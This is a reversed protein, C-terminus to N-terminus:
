KKFNDNLANQFYSRLYDTARRSAQSPMLENEIHESVDMLPQVRLIFHPKVAPIKYWPEGKKLTPPECHILVPRVISQTHLVVHAAGRQLKLRKPDDTRTGEPFIILTEKRKLAQDCDDLLLEAENSNSIYGTSRVVGGLFPSNWLASKVICNSEPIISMLLVVDILTPHNALVIHGNANLLGSVDGKDLSLVGLFRMQWVFERFCWYVMRRARSHKKERSGPWVSLLPVVFLALLMGGFFLHFFCWGTALLRWCYNLKLMM